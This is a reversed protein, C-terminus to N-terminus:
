EKGETLEEEIETIFPVYQFRHAYDSFRQRRSDEVTLITDPFKEGNPSSRAVERSSKVVVPELDGGPSLAYLIQQRPM